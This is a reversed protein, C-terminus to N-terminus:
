FFSVDKAPPSGQHLGLPHGSKGLRVTQGKVKVMENEPIEERGTSALGPKSSEIENFYSEFSFWFMLLCLM